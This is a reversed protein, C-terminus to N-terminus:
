LLDVLTSFTIYLFLHVLCILILTVTISSTLEVMGRQCLRYIVTSNLIFVFVFPFIYNMLVSLMGLSDYLGDNNVTCRTQNFYEDNIDDNMRVVFLFWTSTLTSFFIIILVITFTNRHTFISKNNHPLWVSCFREFAVCVILWSSCCTFTLDFFGHTRCWFSSQDTFEQQLITELWLVTVPILLVFSDVIALAITIISVSQRKLDTLIFVCVTLINGLLGVSIIFPTLYLYIRHIWTHRLLEWESRTCSNSM